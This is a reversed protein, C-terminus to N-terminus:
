GRRDGRDDREPDDVLALDVGLRDRARDADVQQQPEREREDVAGERREVRPREEHLSGVPRERQAEVVAVDRQRGDPVAVIREDAVEPVHEGDDLREGPLQIEDSDYRQEDRPDLGPPVSCVHSIRGLLEEGLELPAPM